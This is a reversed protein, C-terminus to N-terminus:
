LGKLDRNMKWKSYLTLITLTGAICSLRPIPNDLIWSRFRVFKSDWRVSSSLLEMGKEYSKNVGIGSLYYIGLNHIAEMNCSKAALEMYKFANENSKEVGEGFRYRTSLIIQADVHGLDAALKYYKFALKDSKELGKGSEHMKAYKLYIEDEKFQALPDTQDTVVKHSKSKKEISSLTANMSNQIQDYFIIKRCKNNISTFGKVSVDPIDEPKEHLSNPLKLTPDIDNNASKSLYAIIGILGGTLALGIGVVKLFAPSFYGQKKPLNKDSLYTSLDLPKLNQTSELNKLEEEIQLAKESQNNRLALHHALMLLIQQSQPQLSEIKWDKQPTDSVKAANSLFEYVIQETATPNAEIKKGSFIHFYSEPNNEINSLDNNIIM